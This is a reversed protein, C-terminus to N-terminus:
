YFEIKRDFIPLHDQFFALFEEIQLVDGTQQQGVVGEDVEAEVAVLLLEEVFLEQHASGQAEGAVLLVFDSQEGVVQLPKQEVVRDSGEV